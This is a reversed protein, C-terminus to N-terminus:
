EALRFDDALVSLQGVPLATTGTTTMTVLVSWGNPSVSHVQVTGPGISVTEFVDGTSSRSVAIDLTEAGSSAHMLASCLGGSTALLARTGILQSFQPLQATVAAAAAATPADVSVIPQDTACLANPVPVLGLHQGGEPAIQEVGYAPV